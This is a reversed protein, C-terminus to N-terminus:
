GARRPGGSRDGTRGGEATGLWHLYWQGFTVRRHHPLWAPTMGRGDVRHDLWINGREPGTVILWEGLGDGEHCIYLAGHTRRPNFMTTEHRDHWREWEDHYDNRPEFTFPDPCDNEIDEAVRWDSARLPFPKALNTLDNPDYDQDVRWRWEGDVHEVPLVGSFPGPGGRGVHLLFQQYDAPLEVGLQRQVADLEAPTLPAELERWTHDAPTLRLVRARVGPWDILM